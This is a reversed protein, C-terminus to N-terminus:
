HGATAVVSVYRGLTDDSEPSFLANAAGLKRAVSMRRLSYPAWTQIDPPFKAEFTTGHDIRYASTGNLQTVMAQILRAGLTKSPTRPDFGVGNDSVTLSVNKTPDRKLSVLIRGAQRNPFAYKLSNTVLENILLALPTAHDRNLVLPDIDYQVEAVNSFGEVLPEVIAPVLTQSAVESFTDLRYLHEHVASMATIRMQLDSKLQEPLGHMRVMSMIAQLNNKVRHHTDRVLMRNLELAEVLQARRIQDRRLLRLTWAITGLLALATPLAFLVTLFTNRRFVAFASDASVSALAVFQTGPVRRFGVIREVSDAPSLAPYTGSDGDKLYTTFLVYKSLDLPGQALPYRAVLQGDTRFLSVTSVDDLDLSEWVERFLEVDFSIIAAGAFKQNRVLRKSFVFIQEGDLRSVLLSSTYWPAGAALASFYERDRIDIAKVNPDTSFLTRGDAAVVYAKVNGPLDGVAERILAETSPVIVDIDLGLAEDIRGLAQRSLEAIWRANTAVVQSGALARDAARTEADRMERFISVALMMLFLLFLIVILGAAAKLTFTSKDSQFNSAETV